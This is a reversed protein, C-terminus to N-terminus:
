CQVALADAIRVRRLNTQEGPRRRRLAPLDYSGGRESPPHAEKYYRFGLKVLRSCAVSRAAIFVDISSSYSVAARRTSEVESSEGAFGSAGFGRENITTNNSTWHSSPAMDLVRFLTMRVISKAFGFNFFIALSSSRALFFNEAFFFFRLDFYHLVACAVTIPARM